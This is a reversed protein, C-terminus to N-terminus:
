GDADNIGEKQLDADIVGDESFYLFRKADRSEGQQRGEEATTEELELVVTNGNKRLAQVAEVAAKRGGAGYAVYVFPATEPLKKQRSLVTLLHDISVAFGVAPLNPGFNELLQDYRGGGCLAYGPASSYGEFVMGTYYDLSRVLGM